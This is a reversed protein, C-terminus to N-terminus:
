IPLSPTHFDPLVKQVDGVIGYDFCGKLFKFNTYDLNLFSGGCIFKAKTNSRFKSAFDISSKVSYSNISVLVFNYKQIEISSISDKSIGLDIFTTNYGHKMLQSNLFALGINPSDVLSKPNVLLINNHM